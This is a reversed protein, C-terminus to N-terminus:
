LQKGGSGDITGKGTGTGATYGAGDASIRGSPYVIMERIDLEITPTRKTIIIEGLIELRWLQTPETTLECVTNEAIVATGNQPFTPCQASTFRPAFWLVTLIFILYVRGLSLRRLIALSAM